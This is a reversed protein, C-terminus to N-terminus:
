SETELTRLYDELLVVAAMRDVAGKRKERLMKELSAARAGLRSEAEVSTLREDQLRVELGSARELAVALRRVRESMPSEAGNMHLPLGVVFLGVGREGAIRVLRAVDEPLTRHELTALGQATLGLEDSVAVGIRRTGVDVAM